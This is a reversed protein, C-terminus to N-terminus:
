GDRQKKYARAVAQTVPDPGPLADRNNASNYQRAKLRAKEILYDAFLLGTLEARANHYARAKVWFDRYADEPDFIHDFVLRARWGRDCRQM